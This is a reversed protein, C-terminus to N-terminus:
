VKLEEEEEYQNVCALLLADVHADLEDLSSPLPLQSHAPPLELNHDDLTNVDMSTSNCCFDFIAPSVFDRINKIDLEFNEDAM